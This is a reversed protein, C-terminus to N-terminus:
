VDAKPQSFGVTVIVTDCIQNNYMNHHISPYCKVQVPWETTHLRPQTSILFHLGVWMIM